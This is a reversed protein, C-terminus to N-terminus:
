FDEIDLDEEEDEDVEVGGTKYVKNWIKVYRIVSGIDIISTICKGSKCMPYAKSKCDNDSNCSQGSSFLKTIQSASLDSNLIKKFKSIDVYYLNGTVAQGILDGM